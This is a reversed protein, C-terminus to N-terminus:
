QHEEDFEEHYNWAVRSIQSSSRKLPISKHHVRVNDGSVVELGRESVAVPASFDMRRLVRILDRVTSVDEVTETTFRKLSTLNNGDCVHSMIGYEGSEVIDDPSQFLLLQMLDGVTRANIKRFVVKSGDARVVDPPTSM